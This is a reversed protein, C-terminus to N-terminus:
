LITYCNNLYYFSHFIILIKFPYSFICNSICSLHLKLNLALFLSVTKGEETQEYFVVKLAFCDDILNDVKLYAASQLWVDKPIKKKKRGGTFHLYFAHLYKEGIYFAVHPTKTLASKKAEKRSSCELAPLWVSELDICGETFEFLVDDQIVSANEFMLEIPKNFWSGNPGLEVQPLDITYGNERLEKWDNPRGIKVKVDIEKMENKNIAGKPM